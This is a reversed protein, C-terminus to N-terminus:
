DCRGPGAAPPKGFSVSPRPVGCLFSVQLKPPLPWGPQFASPALLVQVAVLLLLLLLLVASLVRCLSLRAPPSTRGCAGLTPPPDACGCVTMSPL